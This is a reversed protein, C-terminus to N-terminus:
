KKAANNVTTTVGNRIFAGMLATVVLQITSNFDADGVLYHAMAGTVTLGALIYTKYGSLM